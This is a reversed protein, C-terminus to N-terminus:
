PTVTLKVPASAAGGVTVVVDQSGVPASVPVTFNVQTVGTLGSTIGIFDIAANVGGVTITVPLVPKPLQALPTGPAPTAGTGLAPMAQGDGTMYLSIVEGRRASSNPILSGAAHFIGPAAAVVPFTYTVSQSSNALVLTAPGPQTEYPIQLNVQGSAAYYLPARVGNVTASFGALTAPLPLGSAAQTSEALEAGYVSLAMGPAYVTAGSAANRLGAANIPARAEAVTCADALHHARSGDTGVGLLLEEFTQLPVSNGTEGVAPIGAWKDAASLSTGPEVQLVHGIPVCLEPHDFPAREFRVRDDSLAKMFAVLVTQENANLGVANLNRGRDIGDPFDGGRSYFQMVQELTALGGNHMYPGTFEVNRLIPTKFVGSVIQTTTTGLAVATSFPKGFDDVGGLGVDEGVPRVNDRFFGTDVGGLGTPGNRNVDGVTAASFEPGSHCRACQEGTFERSGAQENANMANTQGESFLDFPTRDSVLTAEYAQIALGFFIAFNYEAQTFQASSVLATSGSVPKGAADVFQTSNWYAPQFAAKVLDLYTTAAAFGKGSPNAPSGLVSDNAAIKQLALPRLALVKKGVKPWNRGTSSMELTNLPPGVAQSALSSNNLSITEAALQGSANSLVNARTDSLGFPTTGTFTPSARGDWFNKFFFVIAGLLWQLIYTLKNM